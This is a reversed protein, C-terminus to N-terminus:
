LDRRIVFLAHDLSRTFSKKNKVYTYLPDQTPYQTVQCLRVVFKTCM